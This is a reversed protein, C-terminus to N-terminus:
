RHQSTPQMSVGDPSVQVEVRGTVTGKELDVTVMSGDGRVTVLAHRSDKYPWVGAPGSFGESKGRIPIRRVVKQDQVSCVVLEGSRAHPILAYKGDPTFQVRYPFGASDIKKVVELKEMSIISITDEARNGAWIWKDDPSIGIGECESGTTITKLRKATKFDFVTVSGGGMNSCVLKTQAANISLMHSGQAGTKFERTIKGADVDVLLLRNHREDTCVAESDNIWRVDHPMSDAGLEIKKVEKLTGLDIVSLSEGPGVGPKFYNTVIARRGDPSVSSEHPGGGVGVHKLVKMTAVDIVSASDSQQNVVVAKGSLPATALLATAALLTIV